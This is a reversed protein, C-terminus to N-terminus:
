PLVAVSAEKGVTESKLQSRGWPTSDWRRVSLGVETGSDETGGDWRSRDM